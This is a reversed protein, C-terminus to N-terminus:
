IYNGIAIGEYSFYSQIFSEPQFMVAIRNWEWKKMFLFGGCEASTDLNGPLLYDSVLFILKIQRYRISSPGQINM